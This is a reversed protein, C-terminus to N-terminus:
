QFPGWSKGDARVITYAFGCAEHESTKETSSEPPNPLYTDITLVLSECDAYIVYPAKLQNKYNEFHLTHEGKEPMEIRVARGETDKCYETHQNLVRKSSFGQLCCGGFHTRQGTRYTCLLLRSLSNILCYHKNGSRTNAILMMNVRRVEPPMQSPSLIVVRDDDWGFANIALNNQRKM